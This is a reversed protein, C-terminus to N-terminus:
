YSAVNDVNDISVVEKSNALTINDNSYSLVSGNQSGSCGCILATTCIVIVLLLKKM